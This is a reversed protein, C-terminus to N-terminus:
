CSVPSVFDALNQNIVSALATDLCADADVDAGLCSKYRLM